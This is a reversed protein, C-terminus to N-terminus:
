FDSILKIKRDNINPQYNLKNKHRIYYLLNHIQFLQARIEVSPKEMEMESLLLKYEWGSSALRILDITCPVYLQNTIDFINFNFILTHFLTVFYQIM